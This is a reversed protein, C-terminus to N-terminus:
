SGIYLGKTDYGTYNGSPNPNVKEDNVLEVNPANASVNNWLRPWTRADVQNQGMYGSGGGYRTNCISQSIAASSGRWTPTFTPLYIIAGKEFPFTAAENTHIVTSGSTVTQYVTFTQRTPPTSSPDASATVSEIIIQDGPNLQFTAGTPEPLFDITFATQGPILNGNKDKSLANALASTGTLIRDFVNWNFQGALILGVDSFTTGDNSPGPTCYIKAGAPITITPTTNIVPFTGTNTGVGETNMVNISPSNVAVASPGVVFMRSTSQGNADQPTCVYIVDYPQLAYPCGSGEHIAISSVAAGSTLTGSTTIGDSNFVNGYQNQIGKIFQADSGVMTGANGYIMGQNIGSLKLPYQGKGSNPGLWNEVIRAGRPRTGDMNTSVQSYQTGSVGTTDVLVQNPIYTKWLSDTPDLYIGGATSGQSFNLPGFHNEIDFWRQSGGCIYSERCHATSVPAVGTGAPELFYPCADVDFIGCHDVYLGNGSIMQLGDSHPFGGTNVWVAQGGNSSFLITGDSKITYSANSANGDSVTFFPGTETITVGNSTYVNPVGNYTSYGSSCAGSILGGGQTDITGAKVCELLYQQPTGSGADHMYLKALTGLAVTGSGISTVLQSYLTNEYDQILSIFNYTGLVVNTVIEGAELPSGGADVLTFSSGATVDGVFGIPYSDSNLTVSRGKEYWAISTCSILTDTTNTTTAAASRTPPTAELTITTANGQANVPNGWSDVMTFSTGTDTAKPSGPLGTIPGVFTGAPIVGPIPQIPRGIIPSEGSGTLISDGYTIFSDAVTSSGSTVTVPSDPRVSANYYYGNRQKGTSNDVLAFAPYGNWPQGDTATPQQAKYATYIAIYQSGPDGGDTVGNVECQLLNVRGSTAGGGAVQSSRVTPRITSRICMIGSQGGKICSYSISDVISTQYNGTGLTTNAGTLYNFYFSLSVQDLVANGNSDISTRMPSAADPGVTPQVKLTTTPNIVPWPKGPTLSLLSNPDGQFGAIPDFVHPQSPDWTGSGSNFSYTSATSTGGPSSATLSAVYNTSATLGTVSQSLATNSIGSITQLVTVGSSDLIELTYGTLFADNFGTPATWYVIATTSDPSVGTITPPDPPGSPEDPTGYQLELEGDIDVTIM